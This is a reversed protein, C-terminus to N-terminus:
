EKSVKPRPLAQPTDLGTIAQEIVCFSPECSLDCISENFSFM